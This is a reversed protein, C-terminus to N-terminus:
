PRRLCCDQLRSVLEKASPMNQNLGPHPESGSEHVVVADIKSRHGHHQWSVILHNAGHGHFTPPINCAGRATGALTSDVSPPPTLPSALPVLVHDRSIREKAPLQRGTNNHTVHLQTCSPTLIHEPWSARHTPGFSPLGIKVVLPFWGQSAQSATAAQTPSNMHLSCMYLTCADSRRKAHLYRTAPMSPGSHNAGCSVRM